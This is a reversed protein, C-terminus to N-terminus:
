EGAAQNSQPQMTQELSQITQDLRRKVADKQETLELIKEQLCAKELDQDSSQMSIAAISEAQTELLSRLHENEANLQELRSSQDAMKSHLATMATNLRTQALSLSDSKSNTM